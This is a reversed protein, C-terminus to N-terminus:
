CAAAPSGAQKPAQQGRLRRARLQLPSAGASACQGCFCGCLSRALLRSVIGDLLQPMQSQSRSQQQLDFEVLVLKM